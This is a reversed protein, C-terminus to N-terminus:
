VGAARDTAPTKREMPSQQGRFLYMAFSGLGAFKYGPDVYHEIVYFAFYYARCFSWVAIALLVGMRLTPVELLLLGAAVLGTFVFLFGKSYIATPSKLDTMM